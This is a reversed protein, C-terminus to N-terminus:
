IAVVGAIRRTRHTLLVILPAGSVIASSGDDRGDTWLERV